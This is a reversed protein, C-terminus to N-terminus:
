SPHVNKFSLTFTDDAAIDCVTNNGGYNVTMTRNELDVSVTFQLQDGKAIVTGCQDKFIYKLQKM